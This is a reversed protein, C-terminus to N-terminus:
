PQPEARKVLVVNQVRQDNARLEVALTQSAFGPASVNVTVTKKGDDSREPINVDIQQGSHLISGDVLVDASEPDTKVALRAPKWRLRAALRSPPEGDDIEVEKPFCYASEFRVTHRGAPVDIKKLQPGYDGM